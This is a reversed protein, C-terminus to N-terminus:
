PIDPLGALRCLEGVLRQRQRRGLGLALRRGAYLVRERGERDKAKATLRSVAQPLGAAAPTLAMMHVGSALEMVGLAEAGLLRSVYLRLAFGMARVLATSAGTILAQRKLSQKRM